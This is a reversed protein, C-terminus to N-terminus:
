REREADPLTHVDISHFQLFEELGVPSNEWGIGSQKVGGFPINKLGAPSLVHHNVFTVGAVLQEAVAMARAADTSWVSSALGYETANALEIAEAETRYRVIPLLPGFQEVQVLEDDPRADTVIMPRLFYGGEVASEDGWTGLTRVDRGARRAGEALAVIKERQAANNVPGMTTRDDLADGVVFGDLHQTLRETFADHLSESVYVRKVAYCIQGARRFATMAIREATRELDADDLVIAADNGGLEFQVKKLSGAASRMIAQATGAGGTFSIKRVLPHGTLAGGTEGDGNVVNLVGAPLQAAVARVLETVALPALPSPKIVVSNGTVLAPGLKQAALTVPANWPVICAVVGFPRRRVRVLGGDPNDVRHDALVRGAFEAANRFASIAAGIEGRAQYLPTGVERALLYALRDAQLQIVDALGLLIEVREGVERAGWAAQALQASQVAADVTEASASRFSGVVESVRGPNRVEVAEGEWHEEGGILNGVHTPEVTSM